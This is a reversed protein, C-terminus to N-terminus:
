TGVRDVTEVQRRNSGMEHIEGESTDNVALLADKVGSRTGAQFGLGFMLMLGTLIWVVTAISFMPVMLFFAGTSGLFLAGASAMVFRLIVVEVSCFHHRLAHREEPLAGPEGIEYTVDLSVDYTSRIAPSRAKRCDCKV